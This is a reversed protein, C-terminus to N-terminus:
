VHSVDCSLHVKKLIAFYSPHVKLDNQVAPEMAKQQKQQVIQVSSKEFYFQM